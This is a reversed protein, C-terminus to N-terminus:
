CWTLKFLAADEYKKFVFVVKKADDSIRLWSWKKTIGECWDRDKEEINEELWALFEPMLYSGFGMVNKAPIEVSYMM